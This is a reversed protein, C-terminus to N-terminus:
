NNKLAEILEDKNMTSYGKIQKEKARQYLEKKTWDELKEEQIEQGDRSLEATTVAEQKLKDIADQTEEVRNNLYERAEDIDKKIKKLYDDGKKSIKKRTESGKHPAFLLGIIAGSAVGTLTTIILKAADKSRKM